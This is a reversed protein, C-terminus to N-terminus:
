AARRRDLAKKSWVLVYQFGSVLSTILVLAFLFSLLVSIGQIGSARGLVLFIMAVQMFTNIKSAILPAMDLRGIVYRWAVAGSAIVLDRCVVVVTLWVPLLGLRCLSIVSAIILIKDALPDLTAGLTTRMDFRRAIYGDLADSVGAVTFFWLAATYHERLMLTIIVPVLFIRLITILNPLNLTKKFM